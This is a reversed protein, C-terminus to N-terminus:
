RAKARQLERDIAADLTEFPVAGGKIEIGNIFVAPTGAIGLLAGARMDSQVQGAFRGQDLCSDFRRSDIGINSAKLKIESISLSRQDAFMLDHLQWFKGQDNACLSAEAAKIANPHISPIPFQRYVLRVNDGYKRSVEDLTAAFVRCYPCQFDSFEVVTVPASLAGKFPAGANDFKLRYPEFSVVVKHDKELRQWLLTEAARRKQGRLLDAIQGSLEDLSRGGLRGSNANYWTGIEARSPEIGGPGAAGAVLDSYTKGQKAAELTIVRERLVSDLATELIRSRYRQYQSEARDLDGTVTEGLDNVTVQNSGITALIVSSGSPDAASERASKGSETCAILAIAIPISVLMRCCHDRRFQGSTRQRNM